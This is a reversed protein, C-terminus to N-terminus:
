LKMGSARKWFCEYRTCKGGLHETKGYTFKFSFGLMRATAFVKRARALSREDLKQSCNSCVGFKALKQLNFLVMRYGEKLREERRVRSARRARRTKEETRKFAYFFGRRLAVGPTKHGLSRQPCLIVTM